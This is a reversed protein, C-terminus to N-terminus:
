NEDYHKLDKNALVKKLYNQLKQEAISLAFATKPKM